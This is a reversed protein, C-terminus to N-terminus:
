IWPWHNIRGGVGCLAAALDALCCESGTWDRFGATIGASNRCIWPLRSVADHRNQDPFSVAKDDMQGNWLYIGQRCLPCCVTPALLGFASVCVCYGMEMGDIVPGSRWKRYIHVLGDLSYLDHVAADWVTAALPCGALECKIRYYM